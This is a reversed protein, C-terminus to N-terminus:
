KINELSKIFAQTLEQVCKQYAEEDDPYATNCYGEIADLDLEVKHTITANGSLVYDGGCSTLLALLLYKM